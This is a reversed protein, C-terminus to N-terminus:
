THQVTLLDVGLLGNTADGCAALPLHARVLLASARFEGDDQDFMLYWGGVCGVPELPVRSFSCLMFPSLSTTSYPM